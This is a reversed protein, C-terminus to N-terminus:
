INLKCSPSFWVCEKKSNEKGRNDGLSSFGGNSKWELIEWDPLDYDDQYGCLAIKLNSFNQNDKCWKEVDKFINSEINYVKTRNDMNYPPDLFVFTQGNKSLGCNKNTISPTCVKQWDSCVIRTRKLRDSLLSFQKKADFKVGHIGQGATSLHPMAHLGKKKLWNNGISCSLGWVWWGAIKADFFEPDNEIKYIFDKNVFNVIYKQKSHMEIENPPDSCYQVVLDPNIKIARWFNTILCDKDNITEIKPVNPNALLVAASGCFPEVYNEVTGIKDWISEAIISKGGFYVIGSKISM